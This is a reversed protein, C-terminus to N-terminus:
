STLLRLTNLHMEEFVSFYNKFSNDGRFTAFSLNNCANLTMINFGDIWLDVKCDWFWYFM